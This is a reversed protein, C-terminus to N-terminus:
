VFLYEHTQTYLNQMRVQNETMRHQGASSSAPNHIDAESHRTRRPQWQIIQDLGMGALPAVERAEEVEEPKM